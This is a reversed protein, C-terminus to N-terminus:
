LVVYFFSVFWGQWRRLRRWPRLRHYGGVVVPCAAVLCELWVRFSKPLVGVAGGEWLLGGRGLLAFLLGQGAM